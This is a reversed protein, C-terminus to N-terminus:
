GKKEMRVLVATLIITNVQSTKAKEKEGCNNAKKYRLLFIKM